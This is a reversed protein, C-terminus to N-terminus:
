LIKKKYFLLKMGFYDNRQACLNLVLGAPLTWGALSQLTARAGLKADPIHCLEIRGGGAKVRWEVEGIDSTFM